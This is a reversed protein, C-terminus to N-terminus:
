FKGSQKRLVKHNHPYFSLLFPKRKPKYFIELDFPRIPFSEMRIESRTGLGFRRRFIGPERETRYPSEKQM